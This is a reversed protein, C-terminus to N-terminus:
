KQVDAYIAYVGKNNINFNGQLTFLGNNILSPRNKSTPAVFKEQINM